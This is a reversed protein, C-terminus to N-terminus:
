ALHKPPRELGYQPQFQYTVTEFKMLVSSFQTIIHGFEFLIVSQGCDGSGNHCNHFLHDNAHADADLLEDDLQDNHAIGNHELEDNQSLSSSEHQDHMVMQVDHSINSVDRVIIGSSILLSFIIMMIFSRKISAM